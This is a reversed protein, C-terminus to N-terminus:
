DVNRGREEHEAADGLLWALTFGPKGLLIREGPRVEGGVPARGLNPEVFRSIFQPGM